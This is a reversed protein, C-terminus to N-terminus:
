PKEQNTGLVEWSKGVEGEEQLRNQPREAPGWFVPCTFKPNGGWTM